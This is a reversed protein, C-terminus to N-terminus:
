SSRRRSVAASLVGLAHGCCLFRTMWRVQRPHEFKLDDRSFRAAALSAAYRRGCSRLHGLLSVGRQHAYLASRRGRGWQDVLAGTFGASYAHLTVIAPDWLAPYGSDRLVRNFQLDESVRAAENFQGYQEFITRRYSVGFLVPDSAQETVPTRHLHTLLYSAWSASSVHGRSDAKPLLASGVLDHGRGHAVMRARLWGPPVTCDAALFAIIPASSHAIGLNRAGGPFRRRASEVLTIRSRFQDALVSALSGVGTNVLVIEASVDQDIVSSVAALARSDADIALIVVAIGADVPNDLGRTVSPDPPNAPNRPM